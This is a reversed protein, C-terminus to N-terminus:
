SRLSTTWLRCSPGPSLLRGEDTGHYKVALLQSAKGSASGGAIGIVYAEVNKGDPTYWPARGHSAMVVNKSRDLSGGASQSRETRPRSPGASMESTSRTLDIPVGLKIRLNQGPSLEQVGGGRALGRTSHPM